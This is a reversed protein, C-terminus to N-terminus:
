KKCIILMESNNLEKRNSSKHSLKRYRHNLNKVEVFSYNEKLISILEDKSVVRKRTDLNDDSDSYSLVIDADLKGIKEILEKFEALGKSPISYKSQFRDDRYRGNMIRKEGKFVKEELCPYDYKVLTELVHYFRSYHDITYPPDLYFLNVNKMEELDLLKTSDESFVKNNDSSVNLSELTTLMTQFYEEIKLGRDRMCRKVAFDKIKGNKDTVKIPQAFNKGVSSVIESVSHLLCVLLLEYTYQDVVKNELMKDLAFRISDIEISQQLSFYGNSYYISFLAYYEKTTSIEKIKNLNFIGLSEGFIEDAIKKNKNDLESKDYFVGLENLEAFKKYDKSEFIDKEYKLPKEFIRSLKSINFRYYSSDIIDKYTISNTKNKDVCLLVKTILKSYEQIDNAYVIFDQALKNSVVGSGSFLDCVVSGEDIIKKIEYSINDVIKLKSGLYQIVRIEKNTLENKNIEKM